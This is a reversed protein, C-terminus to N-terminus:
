NRICDAIREAAHGDGYPNSAHAMKDYEARDTILRTFEKYIVEEDKLEAAGSALLSIVCVGAALTIGLALALPKKQKM